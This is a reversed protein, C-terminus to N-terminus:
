RMDEEKALAYRLAYCAIGNKEGAPLACVGRGRTESLYLLTKELYERDNTAFVADESDLLREAPNAAGIRQLYGTFYPQGYAWDGAPLNRALLTASPLKGKEMLAHAIGAHWDEWLTLGAGEDEGTGNGGGFSEARALLATQPRRFGNKRLTYGISFLLLLCLAFSLAGRALRSARKGRRAGNEREARTLIRVLCLTEATFVMHLLRLPARGLMLFGLIIMVSGGASLVAEAGSRAADGSFFTLLLLLLMGGVWAYNEKREDEFFHLLERAAGSFGAVGLGYQVTRGAEGMKALLAGDMRETDALFWLRAMDYQIETFGQSGGTEAIEEWDKTPYDELLIRARDYAFGERAAPSREYVMQAGFLFLAALCVPLVRLAARRRAGGSASPLTFILDLLIYPLLVLSVSLRWLLGLLFLAAGCLFLPREERRIGRCLTLWGTGSFFVAQIGYNASFLPLSVSFFLCLLGAPFLSRMGKEGDGALDLLLFFCFFVLARGLFSFADAGPLLRSLGGLLGNLLCHTYQCGNEGFLGMTVLSVSYNDVDEYLPHTFLSALLCLCAMLFAFGKGSATRRPM